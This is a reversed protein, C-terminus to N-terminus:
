IIPLLTNSGNFVNDKIFFCIFINIIKLYYNSIIIKYIKARIKHNKNKNKTDYLYKKGFLFKHIFGSLLGYWDETSM